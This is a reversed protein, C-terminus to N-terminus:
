PDQKGRQKYHRGDGNMRDSQCQNEAKQPLPRWRSIRAEPSYGPEYNAHDATEKDNMEQLDREPSQEEPPLLTKWIGM